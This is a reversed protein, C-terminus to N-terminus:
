TPTYIHRAQVNLQPSLIHMSRRPVIGRHRESAWASPLLTHKHRLLHPLASPMVQYSLWGGKRMLGMGIHM